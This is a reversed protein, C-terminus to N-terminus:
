SATDAVYIATPNTAVYDADWHAAEPCDEFGLEEEMELTVGNTTVVAPNGADLELDLSEAGFVCSLIGFACSVKTRGNSITITGNHTNTITHIEGKFPLGVPTVNCNIGGEVTECGTFSLATIEGLVTTTASGTSTQKITTESHTCTVDDPDDIGTSTLVPDVATFKYVQGNAYKSKIPCHTPDTGTPTVKCLVTASASSAGVFAMLAMAAVAALGFMKVYKM